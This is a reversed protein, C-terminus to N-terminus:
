RRAGTTAARDLGAGTRFHPPLSIPLRGGIAIEGLLASAAARQSVPAGGWALLYAPVSPFATLLYPNGFSIAVLNKGATSLREVLGPFGGEAGISGRGDRPFVYASAVIIDSSDATARLALFEQETTRGDVSVTTVTFGGRRLEQNFVRGAALDGGDAYTISLVRKATRALPVISKSDRALTISKEAVERAVASRSPINVITDIANLDVMRGTRLGAQVKARLIRRASEDIRSQKVRGSSVAAVLTNIAETVNRPMLLIDAGAELALLLPETAGYRNAVGGMTMADTVLLGKFGMEKRLIDTMFYSSLTAPAASDGLIGTVAIHATMVADIGNGVATRFPPLDVSDMHARSARIAPLSLHSDTETDGHGPFHKATTMLGNERAGKIYAAALRSVLAPDDGFSRTNIVPNLPNANVDLVPGFSLHVGVARAEAGLVQGLRYALNESRTAGLAMVPPFVTGGGQPLMSPLAYAGALRMGTGNEMDSAILLPVKALRQMNNLKAGYSHPLGISLILGGVKDEEVWGRMQEHEPSGVGVYEGPVWPMILQAARERPSLSALTRDIWAEDEATLTVLAGPRGAGLLRNVEAGRMGGPKGATSSIAPACAAVSLAILPFFITTHRRM